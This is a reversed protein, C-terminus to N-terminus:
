ECEERHVLKLVARPDDLRKIVEVEGCIVLLGLYTAWVKILDTVLLCQETRTGHPEIHVRCAHGRVRQVM